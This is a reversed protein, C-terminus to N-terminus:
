EERMTIVLPELVEQTTRGEKRRLEVSQRVSRFGPAHVCLAYTGPAPTFATADDNNYVPEVVRGDRELWVDPTALPLGEDTVILVLLYGHEDVPNVQIRVTEHGGAALRVRALPPDLRSLSFSYEGEPLHAIEFTGDAEPTVSMEIRGDASQVTLPWPESDSWSVVEGSIRGNGSPITVVIEAHSQGQAIELRDRIAPYGERSAVVDYRGASLADFVFPESHERRPRLQGVQRSLLSEDSERLTVDWRDIPMTEDAFLLEVTAEAEVAELNGLDVDVGRQFDVNTLAFWRQAGGRGPVAWYLTRRGTPLGYFSFRGLSDSLAYAEFGQSVGAQVMVLLKTNAVPEGRCVLRGTTKWPGGIDLRVTQGARPLISTLVVGLETAPDGRFVYCLEDPLHEIRYYGFADTTVKGLRARNQAWYSFSKEDMFYVDTGPLPRGQEDYVVGEVAGGKKLVIRTQTVGEAAMEICRSSRAYDPHHFVFWHYTSDPSVHAVVFRGDAHTTTIEKDESLQDPSHGYRYSVTAGEVPHGAADAVIGSLVLPASMGIITVTNPDHPLEAMRDGYGDARITLKVADSSRTVIQFAGEPDDVNCWELKDARRHRFRTIPLHTQADVVKAQLRSARPIAVELVIGESPAQINRFESWEGDMVIEITYVGSVLDSLVFETQGADLSTSASCGVENRADIRIGEQCEGETFTVTGSISVHSHPSQKPIQLDLLGTEPPLNVDTSWIRHSGGAVPVYVSLRHIGPVIHTLIFTGDEAVLGDRMRSHPSRWWEPEAEIRWGTAPLGDSCTAAGIVDIGKELVFVVPEAQGPRVLTVTRGALAYDSHVVTVMYEDTPLGGLSASGIADSRIPRKPGRGTDDAIYSAHVNAGSIPQGAENLVTALIEAGLALTYNRIVHKGKRLELAERPREWVARRFHFTEQPQEWEAHTIHKPATLTLNYVGDNDVVELTYLGNSDTAVEYIRGGGSPSLAVLVGDLPQDTDIDTITGSLVPATAAQPVVQSAPAENAEPVSPETEEIRESIQEIAQAFPNDAPDGKWQEALRSLAPLASADGIRGLSEAALRQSAPLGSELIRVLGDLNRSATLTQIESREKALRRAPTSVGGPTNPGSESATRPQDTGTPTWLVFAVFMVVAAVALGAAIRVVRGVDGEYWSGTARSRGSTAQELTAGAEDLIRQDLTITTTVRFQALQVEIRDIRRM